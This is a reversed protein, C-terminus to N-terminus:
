DSKSPDRSSSAERRPPSACCLLVIFGVPLMLLLILLAPRVTAVDKIMQLFTPRPKPPPQDAPVDASSLSSPPSPFLRSLRSAPTPPPHSFQSSQCEPVGKWAEKKTFTALAEFTRPGSYRRIKKGGKEFLLLTPFAQVAYEKMLSRQQTCDVRAFKVNGVEGRGAAGLQDWVPSLKKCHGCWRHAVIRFAFNMLAFSRSVSSCHGRYVTASAPVYPAFFKVFTPGGRLTAAMTDATLTQVGATDVACSASAVLLFASRM